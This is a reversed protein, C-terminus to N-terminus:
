PRADLETVGVGVDGFPALNTALERELLRKGVHLGCAFREAVAVDADDTIAPAAGDGPKRRRPEGAEGGRRRVVAAADALKGDLVRATRGLTVEAFLVVRNREGFHRG